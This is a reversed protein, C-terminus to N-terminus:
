NTFYQLAKTANSQRIGYSGSGCREYCKAFALAAARENKLAIFNNYKFGKQYKSGFTNFEYRISDALFKCQGKLDAGWVGKSGKSWKCM